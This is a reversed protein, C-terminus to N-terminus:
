QIAKIVVIQNGTHPPLVVSLQGQANASGSDSLTVDGSFMDYAKISFQQQPLMSQMTVALRKGLLANPEKTVLQQHWNDSLSQPWIISQKPSQWGIVRLDSNLPVEMPKLKTDTWDLKHTITVMPRYLHWLDHKDIWSDWWWNMGHGAGGLLFGAWAKHALILGDTDIKNGPNNAEDPGQHGVETFIFPQEHNLMPISDGVMTALLDHDNGQMKDM